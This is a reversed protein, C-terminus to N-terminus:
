KAGFLTRIRAVAIGLVLGWLASNLFMTLLQVGTPAESSGYIARYIAHGPQILTDAVHSSVVQLYSPATPQPSDLAEMGRSHGLVLSGMAIILHVAGLLAALSLM